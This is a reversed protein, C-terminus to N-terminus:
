QERIEAVTLFSIWLHCKLNLHNWNASCFHFAEPAEDTHNLYQLVLSASTMPFFSSSKCRLTELWVQQVSPVQCFSLCWVAARLGIQFASKGDM